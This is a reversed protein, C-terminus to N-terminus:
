LFRLEASLAAVDEPTDVDLPATLDFEVYSVRTPDREVVRRAGRDGTVALLEPALARDFLVPNGLEGRYKPAVILPPRGEGPPSRFRAVLVEVIGMGVVPQDGLAIVLGDASPWHQLAYQVGAVLSSSMGSGYAPNVVFSSGLDAVCARVAEADRGLVVVHDLGAECLGLVALRVLREPREGNKSPVRALMKQTGDFRRASGAALLVGVIM